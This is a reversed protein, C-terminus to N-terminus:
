WKLAMHPQESGSKNGAKQVHAVKGFKAYNCVIVWKTTVHALNLLLADQKKIACQKLYYRM